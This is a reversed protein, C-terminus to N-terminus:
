FRGHLDDLREELDKEYEQWTTPDVGPAAHKNLQYFSSTLLEVNVHHLLATFKLDRSQRAAM